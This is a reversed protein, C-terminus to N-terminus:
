LPKLVLKMTTGEVSSSFPTKGKFTFSCCDIEHKEDFGSKNIFVRQSAAGTAEAHAFKFGKEAAMKVGENVLAAAIGKGGHEASVALFKFNMYENKNISQDQFFAKNLTFLLSMMADSEAEYAFGKDGWTDALDCALLSGILQGTESCRALLGSTEKACKLAVYALYDRFERDSMDDSEAVVLSSNSFSKAVVSAVEDVYQETLLEISFAQYM